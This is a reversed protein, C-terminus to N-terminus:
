AQRLEGVFTGGLSGCGYFKSAVHIPVRDNWNARNTEIYDAVEFSSLVGLRGPV